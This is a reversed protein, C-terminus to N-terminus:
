IRGDRKLEEIAINVSQLDADLDEQSYSMPYGHSKLWPYLDLRSQLGLLAATEDASLTGRQYATVVLLERSFSALDGFESELEKAVDSPLDIVVNM